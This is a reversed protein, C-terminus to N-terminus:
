KKEKSKLAMLEMALEHIYFLVNDNKDQDWRGMKEFLAIIMSKEHLMSDLSKTLKEKNAEAESAFKVFINIIESDEVGGEKLDSVMKFGREELETQRKIQEERDM